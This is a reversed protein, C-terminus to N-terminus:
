GQDEVLSAPVSVRVVGRFDGLDYGTALDEPYTQGLLHRVQPDLGEPDGHCRLCVEAVLLPKYYRYETDSVKQVYSAPPQGQALIAEEFYRLAEEEGQDPANAPNRYRYSTRKLGLGGELGAEVMRTLPIAEVSCFEVAGAAGGEEMAATLRGVLTRLLEAAAPEAIQTVEEGMEPTLEPPAEACAPLFLLLAVGLGSGLRATRGIRGLNHVM